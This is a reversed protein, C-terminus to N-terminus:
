VGLSGLPISLSLGWFGLVGDIILFLYPFLILFIVYYYFFLHLFLYRKDWMELKKKVMRLQMEPESMKKSILMHLVAMLTQMEAM